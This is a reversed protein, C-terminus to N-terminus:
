FCSGRDWLAKLVYNSESQLSVNKKLKTEIHAGQHNNYCHFFITLSWNLNRPRLFFAAFNENLKQQGFIEGKWQKYEASELISKIQTMWATWIDHGFMNKKAFEEPVNIEAM